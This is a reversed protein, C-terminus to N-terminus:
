KELCESFYEYPLNPHELILIAVLPFFLFFQLLLIFVVVLLFCTLSTQIIIPKFELIQNVFDSVNSLSLQKSALFKEIDTTLADCSIIQSIALLPICSEIALFDSQKTHLHHFICSFYNLQCSIQVLIKNGFRDSFNNKFTTNFFQNQSLVEPDM